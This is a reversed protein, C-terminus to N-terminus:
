GKQICLLGYSASLQGVYRFHKVPTLTIGDSESLIDQLKSLHPNDSDMGTIAVCGDESLFQLARDIIHIWSTKECMLAPFNILVFDYKQKGNDAFILGKEWPTGFRADGDVHSLHFDYDQHSPKRERNDCGVVMVRDSELNYRDDHFARIISGEHLSRGCAAAMALVNETPHYTKPVGEILIHAVHAELADVKQRQLRQIDQSRFEVNKM